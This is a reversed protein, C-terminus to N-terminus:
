KYLKAEFGLLISYEISTLEKTIIGTKLIIFQNVSTMNYNDCYQLVIGFLLFLLFQQRKSVLYLFLNLERKFM